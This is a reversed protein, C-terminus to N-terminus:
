RHHNRQPQGHRQGGRRSFFLLTRLPRLNIRDVADHISDAFNFHGVGLLFFKGLELLVEGRLEGLDALVPRTRLQRVLLALRHSGRFLLGFRVPLLALLEPLRGPGRDFQALLLLRRHGLRGRGHLREVFFQM